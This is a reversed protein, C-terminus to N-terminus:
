PMDAGPGYRRIVDQRIYEMIAPFHVAPEIRKRRQKPDPYVIRLLRKKQLERPEIEVKVSFGHM